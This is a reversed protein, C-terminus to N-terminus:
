TSEQRVSQIDSRLARGGPMLTAIGGLLGLVTFLARKILGVALGLSSTSGLLMFLYVYAAEEVGLGGPSIPVASVLSALSAACLTDPHSLTAGISSGIIFVATANVIHNFISIVLAIGMTGPHQGYVRVAQNMSQLREGQPLKHIWQDIRILKRPWPHLVALVGLVAVVTLALVPTRLELLRDGAALVVSSALLLLGLLGFVRDVVASVLADARREPHERVVMVAKILDGGTLGPVVLNFFLGLFTLRFVSTIPTSCGAIALLRWWRVVSACVGLFFVAFALLLPGIALGGFVTALGPRWDYTSHETDELDRYLAVPTGAKFAELWEAPWTPDLELEEDIVFSASATDWAGLIEGAVTVRAEGARYEATDQWPVAVLALVLVSLGLGVKVLSWLASRKRKNSTM